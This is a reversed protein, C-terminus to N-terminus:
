LMQLSEVYKVELVNSMCISHNIENTDTTAFVCVCARAHKKDFSTFIFGMHIEFHPARSSAYCYYFGM